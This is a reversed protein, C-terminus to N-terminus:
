KQPPSVHRGCMALYRKSPLYRSTFVRCPYVKIIAGRIYGLFLPTPNDRCTEVLVRLLLWPRGRLISRYAPVSRPDRAPITKSKIKLIESFISTKEPSYKKFRIEFSIPFPGLRTSVSCYDSCMVTKLQHMNLFYSM